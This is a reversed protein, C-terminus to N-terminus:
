SAESEGTVDLAVNEIDISSVNAQADMEQESLVDAVSYRSGIPESSDKSDKNIAPKPKPKSNPPKSGPPKSSPKSAPPKTAPKTTSNTTSNVTPTRANFQDGSHGQDVVSILSEEQKKATVKDDLTLKGKGDADGYVSVRVEYKDVVGSNILKNYLEARKTETELTELETLQMTRPIEVVMGSPLVGSTPGDKALCCFEALKLLPESYVRTMWSELVIAWERRDQEGRGEGGLGQKNQAGFLKSRTLDTTAVLDNLLVEIANDLGQYQRTLFSAEETRRDIAIGKLVSRAIQMNLYREMVLSKNTRIMASLGDIAYVFLSHDILVGAVGDVGSTYKVFANFMKTLVSDHKGNAQELAKGTLRKGVFHLVRDKHVLSSNSFKSGAVVYLSGTRALSEMEKQAEGVTGASVEADLGPRLLNIRYYLPRTYGTSIDPECEHNYLVEIWRVSQINERDVPEHWGRGDDIGLLVYANGHWRAEGAAEAFVKAPTGRQFSNYYDNLYSQLQATKQSSGASSGSSAVSVTPFHLESETPLVWVANECVGSGQVLWIREQESLRRPPSVETASFPDRDTGFGTYPNSLSGTGSLAGLLTAADAQYNGEPSGEPSGEYSDQLGTEFSESM